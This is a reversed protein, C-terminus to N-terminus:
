TQTVRLARSPLPYSYLCLEERRSLVPSYSIKARKRGEPPSLPTVLLQRRGELPGHDIGKACPKRIGEDLGVRVGFGVRFSVRLGVKVLFRGKGRVKIGVKVKIGDRIGIRIEM